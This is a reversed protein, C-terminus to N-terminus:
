RSWVFVLPLKLMLGATFATGEGLTTTTRVYLPGYFGTVQPGSGVGPRVSWGAAVGSLEDRVQAEAYLAPRSSFAGQEVPVVGLNLGYARTPLVMLDDRHSRENAGYSVALEAGVRSVGVGSQTSGGGVFPGPSVTVLHEGPDDPLTLQEATLDAPPEAPRAVGPANAQGHWVVCGQSLCAALIAVRRM